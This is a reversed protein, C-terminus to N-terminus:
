SRAAKRIPARQASPAPSATTRASASHIAEPAYWVLVETQEEAPRGDVREFQSFGALRTARAWVPEDLAGDITVVEEMRPITVTPAGSGSVGQVLALNQALLLFGLLLM